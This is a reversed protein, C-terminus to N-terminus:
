EKLIAQLWTYVRQHLENLMERVEDTIFYCKRRKDSSDSIFYIHGLKTLQVLVSNFKTQSADVIDVFQYNNLGPSIYLYLLIQYGCTLHTIFISRSRTNGEPGLESRVMGLSSFAEAESTRYRKFQGIIHSRAKEDLRLIRSRRDAPNIDSYLLGKSKMRELLNFFGTSSLKSHPMIEGPTAQEADILFCAVMFEPTLLQLALRESYDDFIDTLREAM